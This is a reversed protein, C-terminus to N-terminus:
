RTRPSVTIEKCPGWKILIHSFQHCNQTQIKESIWLGSFVLSCYFSWFCLLVSFFYLGWNVVWSQFEEYKVTFCIIGTGSISDSWTDSAPSPMSSNSPFYLQNIIFPPCFIMLMSFSYIFAQTKCLGKNENFRIEERQVWSIGLTFVMRILFQWRIQIDKVHFEENM